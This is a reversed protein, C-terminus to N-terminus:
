GYRLVLPANMAVMIPQSTRAMTAIAIVLGHKMSLMQSALAKAIRQGVQKAAEGGM